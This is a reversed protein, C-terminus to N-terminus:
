SLFNEVVEKLWRVPYIQISKEKIDKINGEPVIAKNYGLRSAEKVRQNIQGIPRIEGTLALEGIVVCQQMPPKDKLSSICSIAVAIDSAPEIVRLGGGTNFYVDYGGLNFKLKKEIV